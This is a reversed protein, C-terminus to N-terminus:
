VVAKILSAKHQTAACIACNGVPNWPPPDSGPKVGAAAAAALKELKRGCYETGPCGVEVGEDLTLVYACCVISCASTESHHKIKQQVKYLKFLISSFTSEDLM